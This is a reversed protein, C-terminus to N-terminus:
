DSQAGLERSNMPASHSTEGEAGRGVFLKHRRMLLYAAPRRM